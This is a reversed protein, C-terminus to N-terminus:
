DDSKDVGGGRPVFARGGLDFQWDRVLRAGVILAGLLSAAYVYTHEWPKDVNVRSTAVTEAGTLTGFAFIRDSTSLTAGDVGTLTLEDVGSATAKVRVPDTSVVSGSVVVTGGIHVEPETIVATTGRDRISNAPAHNVPGFAVLAWALVLLLVVVAGGRYLGDM